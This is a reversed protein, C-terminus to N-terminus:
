ENDSESQIIITQMTTMMSLMMTTVPLVSAVGRESRSCPGAEKGGDLWVGKWVAPEAELWVRKGGPEVGRWGLGAEEEV